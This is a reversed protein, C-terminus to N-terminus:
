PRRLMQELTNREVMRAAGDAFLVGLMPRRPELDRREHLIIAESSLANINKGRGPFEYSNHQQVWASQQLSSAHLIQEPIRKDPSVFVNLSPVDGVLRGLHEPLPGETDAAYRLLANGISTLNVIVKSAYRDSEPHASRSVEGNTAPDIVPTSVNPTSIVQALTAGSLIAIGCLTTFTKHRIM